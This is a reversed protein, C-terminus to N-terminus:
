LMMCPLTPMFDMGYMEKAFDRICQINLSLINTRLTAMKKVRRAKIESDIRKGIMTLLRLKALDRAKMIGEQRMMKKPQVKKHMPELKGSPM